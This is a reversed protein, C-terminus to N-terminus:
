GNDIVAFFLPGSKQWIKMTKKAGKEPTERYLLSPDISQPSVFAILLVMPMSKPVVLLQTETTSPPCATIMGLSLPSRVVGETTAKVASPVRSTPLAAACWAVTFALRVMEEILRCIPVSQRTFISPLLQVGWSILAM